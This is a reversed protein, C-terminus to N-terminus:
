NGLSSHVGLSASFHHLIFPHFLPHQRFMGSACQERRILFAGCQIWGTTQISTPHHPLHRLQPLESCSVDLVSSVAPHHLSNWRPPVSLYTKERSPCIRESTPITSDEKKCQVRQCDGNKLHHLLLEMRRQKTSSAPNQQQRSWENYCEAGELEQVHWSCRRCLSSDSVNPSSQAVERFLTQLRLIM